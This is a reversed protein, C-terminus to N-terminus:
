VLVITNTYVEIPLDAIKAYALAQPVVMIGVTLGAVLDGLATEPGYVKGCRPFRSVRERFYRGVAVCWRFCEMVGLWKLFPLRDWVLYSLPDFAYPFCEKLEFKTTPDMKSCCEQRFYRKSAPVVTPKTNISEGGVVDDMNALWLPTTTTTTTTTITPRVAAASM